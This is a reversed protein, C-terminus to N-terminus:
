YLRRHSPVASQWPKPVALDPASRYPRITEKPAPVKLDDQENAIFSPWRVRPPCMSPKTLLSAPTADRPSASIVVARRHQEQQEQQQQGAVAHLELTPQRRERWRVRRYLVKVMSWLRLCPVATTLRAHCSM